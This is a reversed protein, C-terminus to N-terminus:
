IAKWAMTVGETYGQKTAIFTLMLIGRYEVVIDEGQGKKGRQVRGAEM